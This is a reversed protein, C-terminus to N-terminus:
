SGVAILMKEFPLHYGLVHQMPQSRSVPVVYLVAQAACLLQVACELQLCVLYGYAIKELAKTNGMDAAKKLLEYGRPSTFLLTSNSVRHPQVHKPTAATDM